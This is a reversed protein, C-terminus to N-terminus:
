VDSIANSEISEEDQPAIVDLADVVGKLTFHLITERIGVWKEYTSVDEYEVIRLKKLTGFLKSRDNESKPLSRKFLTNYRTNINELSVYACRYENVAGERLKEEYLLRLLLMLGSEEARVRRQLAAEDASDPYGPIQSGPPYAVIFNLEPNHVLHIGLIAFYDKLLDELRLYKDYVVSEASSESRYIVQKELLRYAVERFDRLQLSRESLASELNEFLPM